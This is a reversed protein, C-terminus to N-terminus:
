DWSSHVTARIIRFSSTLSASLKKLHANFTLSRELTVGLLRPTTNFCVKQTNIFITANWSSDNSWTSFPYVESKDANLNLKWVKSWIVVCNLVLQAATEADEKKHDTTLISVGDVFFAIVADNNLSSALDNIYLLALLTFPHSHFRSTFRSYFTSQFYLRQLTSRAGPLQQPFINDLPYINSSDM